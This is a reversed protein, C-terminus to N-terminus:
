KELSVSGTTATSMTPFPNAGIYKYNYNKPSTTSNNIVISKAVMSGWINNGYDNITITGNPAYLIVHANLSKDLNVTINGTLSIIVYDVNKQLNITIDGTNALIVKYDNGNLTATSGNAHEDIFKKLDTNGNVSIDLGLNSAYPGQYHVKGGANDTFSESAYIM